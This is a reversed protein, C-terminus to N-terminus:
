EESAESSCSFKKSDEDIQRKSGIVGDKFRIMADM